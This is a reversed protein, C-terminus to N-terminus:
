LVIYVTPLLAETGRPVETSRGRVSCEVTFVKGTAICAVVGNM